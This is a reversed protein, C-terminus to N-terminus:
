HIIFEIIFSSVWSNMLEHVIAAELAPPHGSADSAHSSFRHSVAEHVIEPLPVVRGQGGAPSHPM